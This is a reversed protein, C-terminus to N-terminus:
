ERITEGIENLARAVRDVMALIQEREGTTGTGAGDDTDQQVPLRAGFRQKFKDPHFKLQERRLVQKRVDLQDATTGFFLFEFLSVGAFAATASPDSESTASLPLWPITDMSLPRKGDEILVRWGEEYAQRAKGVLARKRLRNAPTDEMGQFEAGGKVKGDAEAALREREKREQRRQRQREDKRKQEEKADLYKIREQEQVWFAWEKEEREQRSRGMGRRMYSTYDVDSMTNINARSSSSSSYPPYDDSQEFRTTHYDYPDDNALEDFLHNLWPDGGQEMREQELDREQERLYAAERAYHANDKDDNDSLSAPAFGAPTVTYKTSHSSANQLSTQPAEELGLTVQVQVQVQVSFARQPQAPTFTFTSTFSLSLAQAEAGKYRLRTASAGEM